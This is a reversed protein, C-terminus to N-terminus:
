GMWCRKRRPVKWVGVVVGSILLSTELGLVVLYLLLLVFTKLVGAIEVDGVHVLGCDTHHVVMIVGKKGNNGVAALVLLTSMAAQVRGGATRVVTAEPLPAQSVHPLPHPPSLFFLSSTSSSADM